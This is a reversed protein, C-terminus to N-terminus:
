FREFRRKWKEGDQPQLFDQAEPPKISFTASQSTNANAPLDPSQLQAAPAAASNGSESMGHRASTM